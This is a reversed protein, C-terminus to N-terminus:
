RRQPTRPKDARVPIPQLQPAPSLTSEVADKVAEAAKGFFEKCKKGFTM